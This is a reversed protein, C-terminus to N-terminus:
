EDRRSLEERISRLEDRFEKMERQMSAHRQQWERETADHREQWLAVHRDMLDLVRTMSSQDLEDSRELRAIRPEHADVKTTMDDVRRDVRRVIYATQALIITLLTGLLPLVVALM